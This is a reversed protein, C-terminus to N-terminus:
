QPEYCCKEHRYQNIVDCRIALSIPFINYFKKVQVIPHPNKVQLITHLLSFTLYIYPFLKINLHM